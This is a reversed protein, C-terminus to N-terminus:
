DPPRSISRVHAEDRRRIRKPRIQPVPVGPDFEGAQDPEDDSEPAGEECVEGNGEAPEADQCQGLGVHVGVPCHDRDREADPQDPRADGREQDVSQM